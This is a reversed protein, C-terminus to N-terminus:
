QTRTRLQKLGAIELLIDWEAVHLVSPGTGKAELMGQKSHNEKMSLFKIDRLRKKLEEIEKMIEMEREKPSGSAREVELALM